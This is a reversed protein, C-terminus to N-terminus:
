CKKYRKINPTIPKHRPNGSSAGPILITLIPYAAMAADRMMVNLIRRIDTFALANARLEEREIISM